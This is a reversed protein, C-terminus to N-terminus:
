LTALYYINIFWHVMCHRVYEQAAPVNKKKHTRSLNSNRHLEIIQELGSISVRLFHRVVEQMRQQPTEQKNSFCHEALAALSELSMKSIDADYSTKTLSFM